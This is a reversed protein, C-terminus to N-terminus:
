GGPAAPDADLVERVKATLAAPSFPKQLFAAGDQEVGHRLVADPTYGSLYLVRVGPRVATVREALERGGLGPMVVDTVLLHIPGPHSRALSVVADGDGAELVAYGAAALVRRAFGRVAEDDEALVVTETGRGTERLAPFTKSGHQVEDTAPLYVDFATGRGPATEVAVHGGAQTVIGYVTALGLGTGKGVGKTTFFPEFVRALTRADMGCGSDSVALRVYRGPPLDAAAPPHGDGVRVEATEVVLRGGTPMADRANVALNVLVQEVQGPDAKVLGLGPALSTFLHIDEGILRGLMKQVGAVVDNLDLVRAQLLQKRSFALLQRTLATARDAARGIEGLYEAAPDWEGLGDRVIGCYGSIVTLLNNFDHAIGGALQGVAEMKQAQRLQHELSRQETLDMGIGLSGFVEGSAGRLAATSLSVDILGGDKKRCKTPMAQGSGAPPLTTDTGVPADALPPLPRGLVEAAAWGFLREAAPNWLRVKGDLDTTHIAVPAAHVLAQLTQTTERLEEEQRKRGVFHGLQKGLETMVDLLQEDRKQRRRSYFVLVGVVEAGVRVPFGFAGRLPRPGAADHLSDDKAGLADEVWGPEGSAWV